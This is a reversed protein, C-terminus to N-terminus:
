DTDCIHILWTVCTFPDHWVYSHTMDRVCDRSYGGQFKERTLWSNTMDRMQIFWTVCMFSDHWLHILHTVCMFVHWVGLPCSENMWVHSMWQAVCVIAQINTKKACMWPECSPTMGYAHILWTECTLTDRCGNPHTVDCIHILWTVCMFSDRWAYSRTVDCMHILWAVCTFSDCWTCWRMVDCICSDRRSHMLWTVCSDNMQAYTYPNMVFEYACIFACIFICTVFAHSVNCMFWEYACIFIFEDRVWICMHICMHFHMWWLNMYLFHMLWTVFARTVNGM